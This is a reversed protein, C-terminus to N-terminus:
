PSRPLHPQILEAAGAAIGSYGWDLGRKGPGVGLHEQGSDLGSDVGISAAVEVSEENQMITATEDFKAENTVNQSKETRQSMADGRDPVADADSVDRSPGRPSLDAFAVHSPNGIRGVLDGAGAHLESGEPLAMGDSLTLSALASTRDPLTVGGAGPSSALVDAILEEAAEGVGLHKQGSDLGSDVGPNPAVEFPQDNQIVIVREAFKAENTVNETLADWDM